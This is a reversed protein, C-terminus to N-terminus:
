LLDKCVGNPAASPSIMGDVGHCETIDALQSNAYFLCCGCSDGTCTFSGPGVVAQPKTPWTALNGQRDVAEIKFQMLTGTPFKTILTEQKSSMICDLLFSSTNQDAFALKRAYFGDGKGHDGSHITYEAISCSCPDDPPPINFTCSGERVIARQPFSFNIQSGDDFLVLTDEYPSQLPAYSASVLLINSQQATSEPDTVKAVFSVETYTGNLFVGPAATPVDSYLIIRHGQADTSPNWGRGVQPQADCISAASILLSIAVASFDCPGATAQQDYINPEVSQITPPSGFIRREPATDATKSCALVALLAISVLASPTRKSMM